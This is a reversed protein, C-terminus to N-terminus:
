ASRRMSWLLVLGILAIVGGTKALFMSVEYGQNIAPHLSGQLGWLGLIAGFILVTWALIIGGRRM